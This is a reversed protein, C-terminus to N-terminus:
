STGFMTVNLAHIYEPRPWFAKNEPLRARPISGELALFYDSSFAPAARVFAPVSVRYEGDSHDLRLIGADFAWHALPTLCLGNRVNDLDYSAWPLIHAAVVGATPAGQIRPLSLATFACTYRWAARVEGRFLRGAAGRDAARRMRSVERRSAELNPTPDDDPPSPEPTSAVSVPEAGGQYAALILPLADEQGEFVEYVHKAAELISDRTGSRVAAEHAVLAAALDDTGGQAAAWARTLLVMREGVLISRQRAENSAEILTPRLVVTAANYRVVDVAIANICYAKHTFVGVGSGYPGERSPEPLLLVAALVNAPHGGRRADDLRIRPKGQLNKARAKVDVIIDPAVQLDIRRDYLATHSISGHSGALEYEGRGGSRRFAIKM